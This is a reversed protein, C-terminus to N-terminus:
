FGVVLTLLREPDDVGKCERSLPRGDYRSQYGQFLTSEFAQRHDDVFDERQQGFKRLHYSHHAGQQDKPRWSIPQWRITLKSVGVSGLKM